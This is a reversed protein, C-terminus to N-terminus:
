LLLPRQSPFITYGVKIGCGGCNDEDKQGDFCGGSCELPLAATCVCKNGADNLVRPSDCTLPPTCQADQCKGNCFYRGNAACCEEEGKSGAKVCKNSCWRYGQKKLCCNESEDYRGCEKECTKGAELCQGKCFVRGQAKCCAEDYQRDNGLCTSGCWRHNPTKSCYSKTNQSYTEECKEGVGLCRNKAKCWRFGEGKKL